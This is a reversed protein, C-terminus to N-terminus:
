ALILIRPEPGESHLAAREIQFITNQLIEVPQKKSSGAGVGWASVCGDAKWPGSASWGSSCGYPSGHQFNCGSYHCQQALRRFGKKDIEEQLRRRERWERRQVIPKLMKTIAAEQDDDSWGNWGAWRRFKDAEKQERGSLLRRPPEEADETTKKAETVGGGNTIPAGGDGGGVRNSALEPRSELPEGGEPTTKAAHVVTTTLLLLTVAYAVKM